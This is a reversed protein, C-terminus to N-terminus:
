KRKPSADRKRRVNKTLYKAHSVVRFRNSKLVGVRKYNDSAAREFFEYRVHFTPSNLQRKPVDPLMADIKLLLDTEKWIQYQLAQLADDSALSVVVLLESKDKSERRLLPATADTTGAKRLRRGKIQCPAVKEAQKVM